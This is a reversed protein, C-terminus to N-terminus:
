ALGCSERAFTIAARRGEEGMRLLVEGPEGDLRFRVRFATAGGGEVFAHADCRAPELPLPVRTVPGDSRVTVEPDWVPPEQSSGLLHSGAISEIRLVRGPVGTPRVVLTLTGTSGEGPRDAPVEDAWALRAVRQLALEQCRGWVYRGVVDTEDAGAMRYGRGTTDRVELRGSGELALPDAAAPDACDLQRPLVLPFGRESGAPHPRMWEAAVRIPRPLRRDRYVILDPMVDRRTDNAVWVQMQGLSADISSQRMDATLRGTPEPEPPAPLPTLTRISPTPSATAAPDGAGTGDPGGSCATAALLMGLAAAVARSM